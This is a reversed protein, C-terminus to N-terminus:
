YFYDERKIKKMKPAHPDYVKGFRYTIFLSIFLQKNNASDMMDLKKIFGEFIAGAEIAHVVKDEPSYEFCFGYKIFAGPVPRIEDFGKFFSARSFGDSLIIDNSYKVTEYGRDRNYIEYYIPKLLALSAGISYFRRISIGGLDFKQFIEKQKGFGFRFDFTINKKGYVLNGLSNSVVGSQKIEQPHKLISFDFEHFTKLTLNVHKAFRGNVGWGTSNLSFSFSKENRYFLKDQNDLEGQSLVKDPIFNILIWLIFFRKM